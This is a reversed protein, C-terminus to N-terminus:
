GALGGNHEDFTDTIIVIDDLYAYAHPEMELGNLSDVLRHFTAPAGSLRFPLRNFPFLRIKTVRLQDLIMDM